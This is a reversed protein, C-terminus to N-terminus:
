LSYNFGLFLRSNFANTDEAYLGIIYLLDISIVESIKKSIGLGSSFGFGFLEFEKNENYIKEGLPLGEINKPFGPIIHGFYKSVELVIFPSISNKSIFYKGSLSIPVMSVNHIRSSYKGYILEGTTLSVSFNKYVKYTFSLNYGAGYKGDRTALIDPSVVGSYFGISFNNQAYVSVYFFLCITFLFNRLM